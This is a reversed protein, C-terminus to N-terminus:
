CQCHTKRSSCAYLPGLSRVFSPSCVSSSSPSSSASCPGSPACIIACCSRCTCSNYSIVIAAISSRCPCHAYQANFCCHLDLIWDYTCRSCVAEEELPYLRAPLFHALERLNPVELPASCHCARELFEQSHAEYIAMAKLCLAMSKDKRNPIDSLPRTQVLHM